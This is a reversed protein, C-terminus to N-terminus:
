SGTDIRLAVVDAGSVFLACQNETTFGQAPGIETCRAVYACLCSNCQGAVTVPRGASARQVAAIM